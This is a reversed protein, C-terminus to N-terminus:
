RPYNEPYYIPMEEIKLIKDDLRSEIDKKEKILNDEQKLLDKKESKDLFDAIYNTAVGRVYSEVVEKLQDKDPHTNLKSMQNILAHTGFVFGAINDLTNLATKFKGINPILNKERFQLWEKIKESNDEPDARIDLIKKLVEKFYRSSKESMCNVILNVCGRVSDKIVEEQTTNITIPLNTDSIKEQNNKM